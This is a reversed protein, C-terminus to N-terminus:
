PRGPDAAARRANERAASFDPQLRVAENFALLAEPMRGLRALAVGLNNHMDARQPQLRIARRLQALAEETRGLEFLVDGLNGAAEADDPHRLLHREYHPVAEALRGSQTLANGLNFRAPDLDSQLELARALRDAAAAPQGAQLLANGLNNLVQPQAPDVRLAAEYCDIAEGWRGLALLANGLDNQVPGVDPMLELARRYYDVAVEARGDRSEIMGLSLLARVNGPRKALTDEWLARDTQYVQNRRETAFGLVAAVAFFVGLSRRGALRYVTLVTAAVVAALALYMRHETMTQTSVPVFSSSPALVAFFVAGCYGLPRRRLIAWLSGGALALLLLGELWVEGLRAVMPQGYDFVLPDPWFSLRLYHVVAGIQTLAYDASGIASGFGATGGRTGTNAVLVALLLWTSALALHLRGRSRWVESWSVSLFMRDYLVVLVPAVAMVEKTAMGALCALTAAVKWGVGAGPEAARGFCWLTLFFGLGVMAEARQVVYTVSETQLPHLTWILAVALGLWGADRGFRGALGPLELTRRVVTALTWGAAIHVLLNFAHYSWVATGSVAHNLALSMNVLPRGSVTLGGAPPLWSGWLQRITPNERISSDDDMLFPVGLTNHYALVATAAVVM